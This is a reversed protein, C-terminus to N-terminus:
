KNKSEIWWKPKLKPELFCAPHIIIYSCSDIYVTSYSSFNGIQILAVRIAQQM